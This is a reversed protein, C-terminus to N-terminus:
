PLSRPPRRLQQTDIVWHANHREVLLSRSRTPPSVGPAELIIATGCCTPGGISCCGGPCVMENMSADPMGLLATKAQTPIRAASAPVSPTPEISAGDVFGASASHHHNGHAMSVAPWLLMAILLGALKLCFRLDGIPMM